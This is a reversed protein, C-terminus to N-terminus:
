TLIHVYPIGKLNNLNMLKDDFFLHPQFVRLIRSKDIGGLFFVEDMEIGFSTLTTIVREHAPANRATILATRIFKRPTNKEGISEQAFRQIRVIQELFRKLPGAGLPIDANETEHHAFGEIGMEQSVREASLDAVVGDFDFAIRLEQDELDNIPYPSESPVLGAPFGAARAAKVDEKNTSLYLLSNFASLYQFNTSGSSFCARSIDLGYSRISHFARLGTSPSNRSFLVVEIFRDRESVEGGKEKSYVLANLSLLKKIFPFAVGPKLIENVMSRQYECYKKHGEEVFVRNSEKMDFLASSTVAIVLKKDIPYFEGGVAEKQIIEQQESM